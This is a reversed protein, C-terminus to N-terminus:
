SVLQSLKQWLMMVQKAFSDWGVVISMITSFLGVLAVLGTFSKHVASVAVRTVTSTRILGLWTLVYAPMLLVWQVGERLWIFPNRIARGCSHLKEELAGKYRLLSDALLALYQEEQGDGFGYQRRIEPILNVVVAYDKYMYNAFPPRYGAMKGWYGMEEQMRVSKEVLWQYASMDTGRSATFQALSDMYALLNAQKLRLDGYRRLTRCAGIILFIGLIGLPILRDM